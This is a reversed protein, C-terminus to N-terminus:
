KEEILYVPLTILKIIDGVDVFCTGNMDAFPFRTSDLPAIGVLHDVMEEKTVETFMLPAPAYCLVPDNVSDDVKAYIHYAGEPLPAIYWLYHDDPDDESLGTKILTGDYDFPDDDYYLEIAADEEPDDDTWEIMFGQKSYHNDQSPYIFSFGPPSNHMEDAGIDVAAGGPRADGGFDHDPFIEPDPNGKDLGASCHRIRYDSDKRNCFCPDGAVDNPGPDLRFLDQTNDFYQNYDLSVLTDTTAVVGTAHGMVINNQLILISKEGSSVYIGESDYYKSSNDVLTNNVFVLECPDSAFISLGDGGVTSKNDYIYNNSIWFPGGSILMGGGPLAPGQSLFPEDKGSGIHTDRGWANNKYIRNSDLTCTRGSDNYLMLGGAMADASNDHISCHIIDVSAQGQLLVGGGYGEPNVAVGRTIHVGELVAHVNEGRIKM